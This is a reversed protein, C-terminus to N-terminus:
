RFYFMYVIFAAAALVALLVPISRVKKRRKRMTEAAHMGRRASVSQRVYSGPVYDAREEGPAKYKEGLVIKKREERAEAEPDYYRPTYNFGRPKRQRFFLAM